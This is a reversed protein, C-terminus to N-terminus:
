VVGGMRSNWNFTDVTDEISLSGVAYASFGFGLIGVPEYFAPIVKLPQANPSRLGRNEIALMHLSSDLNLARFAETYGLANITEDDTFLDVEYEEDDISITIIGSFVSSYAYVGVSDGYFQFSARAGPKKKDSIITNNVIEWDEGPRTMGVRPDQGDFQVYEPYDSLELDGYTYDELLSSVEPLAELPSYADPSECYTDGYYVYFRSDQYQSYDILISDPYIFRVIIYDLTHEILFQSRPIVTVGNAVIRIDLFDPRIKGNVLSAKPLYIRAYHGSLDGVSLDFTVQKRYKYHKNWWFDAM